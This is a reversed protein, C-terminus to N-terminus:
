PFLPFNLLVTLTTFSSLFPFPSLLPHVPFYLSLSSLLPHSSLLSFPFLPSFSLYPCLPFTPLITLTIFSSFLRYLLSPSFLTHLPIHPFSSFSLFSLFLLSSFLFSLFFSYFAFFFLLPYFYLSHPPFRNIPVCLFISHPFPPLSLPFSHTLSRHSYYLLLLLSLPFSFHFSSFPFLLCVSLFLFIHPFIHKHEDSLLHPASSFYSSLAVVAYM